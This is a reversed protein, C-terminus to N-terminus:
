KHGPKEERGDDEFFRLFPELHLNAMWGIFDRERMLMEPRFGLTPGYGSSLWSSDLLSTCFKGSAPAIASGGLTLRCAAASPAWVM